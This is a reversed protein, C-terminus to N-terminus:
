VWSEMVNVFHKRCEEGDSTWVSGWIFDLFEKTAILYGGYVGSLIQPLNVDAPTSRELVSPAIVSCHTLNSLLAYLLREDPGGHTKIMDSVVCWKSAGKKRWEDGFAEELGPELEALEETCGLEELRCAYYVKSKDMFAWFDRTLAPTTIVARLCAFYELCSRAIIYIDPAFRPEAIRELTPMSLSYRGWIYFGARKQDDSKCRERIKDTWANLFPVLVGYSNKFSGLTDQPGNTM